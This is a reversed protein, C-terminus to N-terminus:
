GHFVLTYRAPLPSYEIYFSPWLVSAHCMFLWSFVHYSLFAFKTSTSIQTQNYCLLQPFLHMIPGLKKDISIISFAFPFFIVNKKKRSTTPSIQSKSLLLIDKNKHQPIKISFKLTVIFFLFGM